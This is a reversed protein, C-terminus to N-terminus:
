KGCGFMTIDESLSYFDDCLEEYEENQCERKNPWWEVWSRSGIIYTYTNAATQWVDNFSGFIIYDLGKKFKLAERCKVHSIFTRKQDKANEDTGNKFVNTIRMVYRDFDNAYQTELLTAKYVYDMGTECAKEKRELASYSKAPDQSMLCNGESCRCVDGQCIRGYLHDGAVTHYFKTCRTEKPSYYDYITVSGPQLLGVEFYRHANFKLCEEETHSIKDLYIILTGKDNAGKNIEFQSIYRDVGNQLRKLDDVDPSYGTMMTVDVISMTLDKDGRYRQWRVGLVLAPRM